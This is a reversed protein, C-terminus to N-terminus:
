EKVNEKRVSEKNVFDTGDLLIQDQENNVFTHLQKFDKLTKSQAMKMLETYETAKRRNDEETMLTVLNQFTEAGIKEHQERQERTANLERVVMEHNKHLERLEKNCEQKLRTTSSVMEFLLRDAEDEMDGLDRGGIQRKLMEEQAQIDRYDKRCDSIRLELTVLKTVSTEETPKLEDFQLHYHAWKELFYDLDDVTLEKKLRKYASTNKFYQQWLLSKEEDSINAKNISDKSIKTADMKVIGESGHKKIGLKVRYKKIVPESRNIAEAIKKDTWGELIAHEEIFQVEESTLKAPQKKVPQAKNEETSSM